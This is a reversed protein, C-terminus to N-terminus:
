EQKDEVKKNIEASALTYRYFLGVPDMIKNKIEDISVDALSAMTSM